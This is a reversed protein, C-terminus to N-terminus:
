TRSLRHRDFGSSGFLSETSSGDGNQADSPLKQNTARPSRRRDSSTFASELPPSLFHNNPHRPFLLLIKMNPGCLLVNPKKLLASSEDSFTSTMKFLTHRFRLSLSTTTPLAASSRRRRPSPTVRAIQSSNLGQSM